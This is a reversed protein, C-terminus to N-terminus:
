VAKDKREQSIETQKTHLHLLDIVDCAPLINEVIATASFHYHESNLISSIIGTEKSPEM